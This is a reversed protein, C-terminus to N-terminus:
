GGAPWRRALGTLDWRHGPSRAPVLAAPLVIASTEKTAVALGAAVGSLTWWAPGGGMAVRGVAIVFALAFCAFLSEQIFMRSYFVMVPSLALLWASTA